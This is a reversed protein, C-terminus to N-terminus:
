DKGRVKPRTTVNRRTPTTGTAADTLLRLREVLQKGLTLEAGNSRYGPMRPDIFERRFLQDTALSSLLALEATTFKVTIRKM